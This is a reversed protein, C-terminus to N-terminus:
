LNIQILETFEKDLSYVSDIILTEIDIAVRDLMNMVHTYNFLIKREIHNSIRTFYGM